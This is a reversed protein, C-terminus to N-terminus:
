ASASTAARTRTSPSSPGSRSGPPWGRAPTASRSSSGAATTSPPPWTSRSPPPSKEMADYANALFHDLMSRLHGAHGRIPPSRTSGPPGPSRRCPGDHERARVYDAVLLDLALRDEGIGTIPRTFDILRRAVTAAELSTSIIMDALAAPDIPPPSGPPAQPPPDRFQQRHRQLRQHRPPRDGLRPPEPRQPGRPGRRPRERHEHGGKTEDRSRILPHHAGRGLRRRGPRRRARRVRHHPRPTKGKEVDVDVAKPPEKAGMAPSEYRVKGDVLVKFAVSGLPGAGDDLGITAQFRRADPDLKYLLLTRSQTGIGRDFARGGLRLPKGAVSADRRHPRTPGIYPEYLFRDPERDSLYAVSGGLVHVQALEGIPLRVEAGFRAKGVVLGREVRVDTAGLRSGDVLTLEFYPGAPRKYDVRAPEFGIAVVGPRDLEVKGTAPQFSVKKEDIGALLGPLRDGNALWLM